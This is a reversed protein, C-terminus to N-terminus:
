VGAVGSADLGRMTFRRALVTALPTRLGAWVLGARLGPLAVARGLRLNLEARRAAATAAARRAAQYRDLAHELAALPVRALDEGHRAAVVGAALAAADLWGLNMGQGGFPPMVHAADGALAIRGVAFRRALRTEVGFASTMSCGAPDLREGVREEVEAALWAAVMPSPAGVAGGTGDPDGGADVANRAGAEHVDDVAVVWRRRRQPLPFSEVVGHRTLYIAADSGFGTADPFDGMLYRDPFRREDVPVLVSRRVASAHGDCGVVLAASRVSGDSLRAEVGDGSGRVGALEVGRRLGAGSLRELRAELLAESDAQPLTLVFRFPPPCRGFDLTGLLTRGAYAHGREVRVGHALFAGALEVRALAELAPPHVGISRSHSSRRTRREVVEVRVGAAALLCGLFLGVPGGGVVLVEVDTM